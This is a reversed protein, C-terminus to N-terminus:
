CYIIRTGENRRDVLRFEDLLCPFMEDLKALSRELGNVVKMNGIYSDEGEIADEMMQKQLMYFTRMAICLAETRSEIAEFFDDKVVFIGDEEKVFYKKSRKKVM